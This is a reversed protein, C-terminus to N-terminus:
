KDLPTQVALIAGMANKRAAYESGEALSRWRPEDFNLTFEGGGTEKFRVAYTETRRGEREDGVAAGGSGRHIAPAPWSADLGKGAAKETRETRWVLISYRYKTRYAAVDQYVAEVTPVEETVTRYVPEEYTSTVVTGNGQREKRTKTVTGDQVQRTVTKMVTREGVQVKDYHHVERSSGLISAGSPLEGEWASGYQIELRDVDLTRTWAHDLVTVRVEHTAFFLFYAGLLVAVAIAAAIGIALPRPVRGGKRAGAARAKIQSDDKFYDKIGGTTAGNRDVAGEALKGGRREGCACFEDSAPNRRGCQCLWDPGGALMGYRPDDEAVFETTTYDLNALFDDSLPQGCEPCKKDFVGNLGKRGCTPCDWLQITFERGKTPM